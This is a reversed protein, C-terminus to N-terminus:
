RFRASVRIGTLLNGVDGARGAPVPAHLHHRHGRLRLLRGHSTRPPRPASASRPSAAARPFPAPRGPGLPLPRRGRSRTPPPASPSAPRPCFGSPAWPGQVLLDDGDLAFRCAAATTSTGVPVNTNTGHGFYVTSTGSSPSLDFWAPAGGPGDRDCSNGLVLDATSTALRLTGDRELFALGPSTAQASCNTGDSPLRERGAVTLSAGSASQFTLSSAM